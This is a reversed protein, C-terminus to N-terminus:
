GEEEFIDKVWEVLARSVKGGRVSGTKGSILVQHVRDKSTYETVWAPVLILKFGTVQIESASCTADQVQALESKIEKRVQEVAIKRAELSADAMSVEYIEAPWGSLYRPDYAPASRLDFEPILQVLLDALKHMGTVCVHDYQVPYVGSVPEKQRANMGLGTSLILNERLSAAGGRDYSFQYGKWPINGVIDFTWVPLYLGRPPQVKAQPRIRNKEVWAVLAATAQKQNLAMPVIADPALLERRKQTAVVHNSGCYACTASLEQPALLFRAGCGRCQFTVMSVPKRQGLGDAMAIFFDAEQGPRNAELQEVRQCSECVLTRGDASYTMRGGCKPCTFRDAQVGATGAAQAPLADADVIQDAKLKGDLIALARRARAHTMDIALTDELLRRKAQPDETIVSLWYSAEARTEMDDASDLARQLYPRALDYEKIRV